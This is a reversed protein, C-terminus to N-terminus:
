AVSAVGRTRQGRHARVPLRRDVQKSSDPGREIQERPDADTGALSRTRFDTDRGEQLDNRRGPYDGTVFKCIGAFLDPTWSEYALVRGSVYHTVADPEGGYIAAWAATNSLEFRSMRASTSLADTDSLCRSYEGELFDCDLIYQHYYGPAHDKIRAQKTQLLVAKAEKYRGLGMLAEAQFLGGLWLYVGSANKSWVRAAASLDQWRELDRLKCLNTLGTDLRATTAADPPLPPGGAVLEGDSDLRMRPGTPFFLSLPRDAGSDAVKLYGFNKFSFCRYFLPVVTSSGTLDPSRVTLQGYAVPQRLVSAAAM